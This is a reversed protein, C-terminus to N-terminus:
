RPWLQNRPRRHGVTLIRAEEIRDTIPGLWGEKRTRAEVMEVLRDYADAPFLCSRVALPRLQFQRAFRLPLSGGAAVVTAAKRPSVLRRGRFTSTKRRGCGARRPDFRMTIACPRVAREFLGAVNPLPAEIGPIGLGIATTVQALIRDDIADIRQSHNSATRPHARDFLQGGVTTIPDGRRRPESILPEPADPPGLRLLQTQGWAM